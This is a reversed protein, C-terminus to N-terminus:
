PQASSLRRLVWRDGPQLTAYGVGVGRLLKSWAWDTFFRFPRYGALPVTQRQELACRLHRASTGPFLTACFGITWLLHSDSNAVRALGVQDGLSQAERNNRLLPLGGNYVELGILTRAVDPDKLADLIANASLSPIWQGTPHAAICVGGQAAVHLM